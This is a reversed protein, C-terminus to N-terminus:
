LVRPLRSKGVEGEAFLSAWLKLDARLWDLAQERLRGRQKDELKGADEGKGAAALAASCAASYRHGATLDDALRADAAFVDAYVRAAAAHMRKAQCLGVLDLGEQASELRDEGSLLRPLRAELKLLRECGRLWESLEARLPDGKPVLALARTMADRADAYRGRRLLAQALAEHQDAKKPELEVAKQYSAIAGDVEGKDMLAIGLNFRATGDKPDLAVAKKYCDIAEDLKGKGY